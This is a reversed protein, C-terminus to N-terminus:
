LAAYIQTKNRREGPRGYVTRGDQNRANDFGDGANRRTHFAGFRTGASALRGRLRHPPDGFIQTRGSPPPQRAYRRSIDKREFARLGQRGDLTKRRRRGSLKRRGRSESCRGRRLEFTQGKRDHRASRSAQRRLEKRD